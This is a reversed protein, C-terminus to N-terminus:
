GPGPGIEFGLKSVVRAYADGAERADPSDVKAALIAAYWYRQRDRPPLDDPNLGLRASWSRTGGSSASCNPSNDGPSAPRCSRAMPGALEGASPSTFFHGSTVASSNTRVFRRWSNASDKWAPSFEPRTRAFLRPHPKGIKGM